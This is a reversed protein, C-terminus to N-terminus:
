VSFGVKAETDKCAAAALRAAVSCNNVLLAINTEVSKGNTLQAIRQLLYPTLAKGSIEEQRADELARSVYPEVDIAHGEPVRVAVMVASRLGLKARCIKLLDAYEKECSISPIPIGTTNTYFGPLEETQYGYIAVSHSELWEVTAPIDLVCKIGSSVVTIPTRSLEWLDESIDPIINYDRHVGGVGGTAVVSIGYTAAIRATASVTTAGNAKKLILYPLNGSGAKAPSSTALQVIDDESLGVKLVGEIVAIMAPVAGADRVAQLMQRAADINRDKPLGQGIVSTELAVVPKNRNIASKVESSLLFHEQM